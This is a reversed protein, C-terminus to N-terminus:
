FKLLANYPVNAKDGLQANADLFIAVAIDNRVRQTKVFQIIDTIFDQLPDPSQNGSAHSLTWQQAYATLPGDKTGGKPYVRYASIFM